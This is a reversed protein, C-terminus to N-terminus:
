SPIPIATCENAQLTNSTLQTSKPQNTTQSPTPITPATNIERTEMDNESLRSRLHDM